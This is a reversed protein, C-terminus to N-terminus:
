IFWKDMLFNTCKLILPTKPKCFGQASLVSNGYKGLVTKRNNIHQM